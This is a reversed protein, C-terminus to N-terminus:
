PHVTPSDEYAPSTPHDPTLEPYLSVVALKAKRDESFLGWHGETGAGKWSEDFAEFIFATISHARSWETIADFYRKQKQEDGARPAHQEGVTYTPWGVEGFVITKDPHAQRVREYNAVTTSLGNDIDQHGWVPYTHLTIFDVHSTLAANPDVWYLYDDAVTVSAKVSHRVRDTAQIIEAETMKHDSWSVLAENGVSVAVVIDGYKKALKIGTALQAENASQLGAAGSLWIGLMVKIPLKNKRIVRLVTESHPDAGYVRLLSWHRSLIRMDELVEAYSPYKNSTPSQGMRYGSYCIAEGNWQQLALDVKTPPAQRPQAAAPCM